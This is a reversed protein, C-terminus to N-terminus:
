CIKTFFVLRFLLSIRSGYLFQIYPLRISGQGVLHHGQGITSLAAPGKVVMLMREAVLVRAVGVLMIAGPEVAAGQERTARRIRIVGRVTITGQM